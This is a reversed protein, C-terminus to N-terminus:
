CLCASPKRAKQCNDRRRREPEVKTVFDRVDSPVDVM